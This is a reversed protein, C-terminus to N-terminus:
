FQQILRIALGIPKLKIYSKLYRCNSGSAHASCRKYALCGQLYVTVKFRLEVTNTEAQTYSCILKMKSVAIVMNVFSKHLLNLQRCNTYNIKALRAVM